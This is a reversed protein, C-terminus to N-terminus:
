KVFAISTLKLDDKIKDLTTTAVRKDRHSIGSENAAAACTAPGGQNGRLAQEPNV